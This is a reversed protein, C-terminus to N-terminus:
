QICVEDSNLKTLADRMEIMFKQKDDPDEKDWEREFWHFRSSFLSIVVPVSTAMTAELSIRQNEDLVGKRPSTPPMVSADIITQSRNRETQDSRFRPSAIPAESVNRVANVHRSIPLSLTTASRRTKQRLDETNEFTEDVMDHCRKKPRQPVKPGFRKKLSDNTQKMKSSEDIEIALFSVLTEIELELIAELTSKTRQKISKINIIESDKPTADQSLHILEVKYRRLKEIIELIDKDNTRELVYDSYNKLTDFFNSSNLMSLPDGEAAVNVIEYTERELNRTMTVIEIILEDNQTLSDDDDDQDLSFGLQRQLTETLLIICKTNKQLEKRSNKQEESTMFDMTNSCSAKTTRIYELSYKRTKKSIAFVFDIIINKSKLNSWQTAYKTLSATAVAIQHIHPEIELQIDVFASDIDLSLLEELKKTGELIYSCSDAISESLLKEDVCDDM